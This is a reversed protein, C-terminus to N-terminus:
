KAAVEALEQFHIIAHEFTEIPIEIFPLSTQSKFWAAVDDPTKAARVAFSVAKAHMKQRSEKENKAALANMADRAASADAAKKDAIAQENDHREPDEGSPILFMKLIHNKTAYSIAIGYALDSVGSGQAIVNMVEREVPNDANIWTFRVNLRVHHYTKPGYKNVTEISERTAETVDILLVIGYDAMLPRVMAMLDNHTVFDFGLEKASGGKRAWGIHSSVACIRQYLNMPVPEASADQNDIEENSM